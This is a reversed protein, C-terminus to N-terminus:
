NNSIILLKIIVSPKKNIHIKDKNNIKLWETKLLSYYTKFSFEWIFLCTHMHKYPSSAKLKYRRGTDKEWKKANYHFHLSPYSSAPICDKVGSLTCQLSCMATLIFVLRPCWSLQTSSSSEYPLIGCLLTNHGPAVLLLFLTDSQTPFRSKIFLLRTIHHLSAIKNTQLTSQWQPPHM